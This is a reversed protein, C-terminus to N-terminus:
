LEIINRRTKPPIEKEVQDRLAKQHAAEEDNLRHDRQIRVMPPQTARHLAEAAGADFETGIPKQDFGRRQAKSEQGSANANIRVGDRFHNLRLGQQYCMEGLMADGGRHDLMPWPYDYRYLLETRITWWGGTAFRIKSREAPDKEAYWPQAKVFERQQGQWGITYISGVMDSNVMTHELHQLWYPNNDGSTLDYGQLFSDDDFWMFYDTEVPKLGHVMQRMMPYKHINETSEWINEPPVWSKVWSTVRDSVQNLGVRLNLDEARVTNTISRLCREALEPYDGYLLVGITFKDKM